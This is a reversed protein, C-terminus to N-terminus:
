QGTPMRDTCRSCNQRGAQKMGKAPISADAQSRNCRGTPQSRCQDRSNVLGFINYAPHFQDIQIDIDQQNGVKLGHLVHLNRALGCHSEFSLRDLTAAIEALKSVQMTQALDNGLCHAETQVLAPTLQIM